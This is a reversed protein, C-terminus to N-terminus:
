KRKRQYDVQEHERVWKQTSLTLTPWIVFHSKDADRIAGALECAVRTVRTLEAKAELADLQLDGIQSGTHYCPM